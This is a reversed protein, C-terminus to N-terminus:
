SGEERGYPFGPQRYQHCEPFIRSHWYQLANFAEAAGDDGHRYADYAGSMTVHMAQHDQYTILAHDPESSVRAYGPQGGCERGMKRDVCNPNTCIMAMKGEM